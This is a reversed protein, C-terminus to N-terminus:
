VALAPEIPPPVSIPAGDPFLDRVAQGDPLNSYFGNIYRGEDPEIGWLRRLLSEIRHDAQGGLQRESLMGEVLEDVERAVLKHEPEVINPIPLAEIRAHTLKAFARAPDIEGFRKMVIFNMIRSVLCALIFENSYGQLRAEETVRYIYVSQPCRSDDKVITAAVGVGAQRILIKPGRFLQARKLLRSDLPSLDTRIFRRLPTDYRSILNGGDVYPVNYPGRQTDSVLSELVVNKATLVAKCSPCNKDRYGGGKKKEGPVTYTM